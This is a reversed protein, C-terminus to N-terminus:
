KKGSRPGDDKEKKNANKMQDKMAQQLQDDKQASQYLMYNSLARVANAKLNEVKIPDTEHRGADFQSRVTHRLARAKPSYGPTIHRVLRM